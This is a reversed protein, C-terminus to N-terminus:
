SKWDRFRDLLEGMVRDPIPDPPLEGLTEVMRRMKGVHARCDRCLGLHKQFRLREEDGMRGELYDTVLDSMERCTLM